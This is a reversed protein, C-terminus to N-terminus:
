KEAPKLARKTLQRLQERTFNAAGERNRPNDVWKKMEESIDDSYGSGGGWLNGPNISWARNMNAMIARMSEKGPIVRMSGKTPNKDDLPVNIGGNELIDLYQAMYSRYRGSGPEAYNSVIKEFDELSSQRSEPTDVTGFTMQHLKAQADLASERAARTEADNGISGPQTTDFATAASQTIKAMQAPTYKGTQKLSEIFSTYAETDGGELASIPPLNKLGLNANLQTRQATDLAALNARGNHMPYGLAEAEASVAAWDKASTQQRATAAETVLKDINRNVVDDAARNESVDAEATTKRLNQKQVAGSTVANNVNLGFQLNKQETEVFQNRLKEVEAAMAAHNPNNARVTELDALAGAADGALAKAKVTNFLDRNRFAFENDNYTREATVETQAATRRENLSNLTKLRGEQDLGARMAAITDQNEAIAEPTKLSNMFEQYALLKGQEERDAIKQAGAEYDKLTSGARAFATDLMRNASEMGKMAGTYDPAVISRWTIPGSM